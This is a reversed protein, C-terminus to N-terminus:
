QSQSYANSFFFTLLFLYFNFFIHANRWITFIIALHRSTEWAAAGNTLQIKQLVPRNSTQFSQIRSKLPLPVLTTSKYFQRIKALRFLFTAVNIDVSFIIM